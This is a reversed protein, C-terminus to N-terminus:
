VLLHTRVDQCVEDLASDSLKLYGLLGRLRAMYHQEFVKNAAPVDKVCACALYLGELDLREIQAALPGAALGGPLLGGLHEGFVEVPLDVEPWRRRGVEWAFRLLSEFEAGGWPARAM